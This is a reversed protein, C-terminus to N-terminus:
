RVARWREVAALIGEDTDATPERTFAEAPYAEISPSGGHSNPRVVSMLPEGHYAWATPRAEDPEHARLRVTRGPNALFWAGDPVSRRTSASALAAAASAAQFAAEVSSAADSAPSDATPEAGMVEGDALAAAALIEQVVAEAEAQEPTM